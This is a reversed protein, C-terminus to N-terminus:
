PSTITQAPSIAYAASQTARDGSHIAGACGSSVNYIHLNGGTTLV